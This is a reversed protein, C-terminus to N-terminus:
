RLRPAAGLPLPGLMMDGGAFTLPLQLSDSSGSLMRLGSTVAPLVNEPVIGGQDLLTLLDRWNVVQLLIRGEPVGDAGIDVTGEGALRLDGWNLDFTNITLRDLLAPANIVLRDLPRDLVATVDATLQAPVDPAGALPITPVIDSLSIYGAYTNIAPGMPRLAVVAPGTQVQWGADSQIDFSAAEATFNEFPLSPTAAVDFNARLGDSEVTLAQEGVQVTQVPPLTAIVRNPRYSLAATQVMPAQWQVFGMPSQVRLDTATVDFRSPFGSTELTGTEVQWGYSEATEIATQLGGDLGRTAVVWYGSYLAALALVVVLLTKM